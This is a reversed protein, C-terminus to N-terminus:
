RKKLEVEIKSFWSAVNDIDADSLPKAIVNMVENHRKGDRFHRLQSALYIESQGALSPTGPMTSLGNDGHCMMCSQAVKAGAENDNALANFTLGACLLGAAILSVSKM